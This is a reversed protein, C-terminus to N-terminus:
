VGEVLNTLLLSVIKWGKRSTEEEEQHHSKQM